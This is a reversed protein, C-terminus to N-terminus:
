GRALAADLEAKKKPDRLRKKYEVPNKRLLEYVDKKTMGAPGGTPRHGSGTNPQIGFSPQRKVTPVPPENTPPDNTPLDNTPEVNNVVEKPDKALTAEVNYFAIELNDDTTELSNAALWGFVVDSNAQCPYFDFKHRMCFRYTMASLEAGRAKAEAVQLRNEFDASKEEPTVPPAKPAPLPTIKRSKLDILAKNQRNLARTVAINAERMKDFMEEATQAQLITPRGIPNGEEDTVQYSQVFKAHQEQTEM